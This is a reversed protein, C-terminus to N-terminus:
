DDFIDGINDDVNDGLSDLENQKGLPKDFYDAHSLAFLIISVLIILGFAKLYSSLEQIVANAEYM